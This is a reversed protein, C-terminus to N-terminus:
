LSTTKLDVFEIDTILSKVSSMKTQFNSGSLMVPLADSKAKVVESSTYTYVDGGNGAFVDDIYWGHLEYNDNKMTITPLTKDCSTTKNYVTCTDSNKSIKTIGQGEIEYSVIIDKKYIGYITKNENPMVYSPLATTADKDTNWGLFMYGEKTCTVNTLDVNKGVDFLSSQGISGGGNEECNYTLTRSDKSIIEDNDVEKSEAQVFNFSISSVGTVEGGNYEPNYAVKVKIDVTSNNSGKKYLKQGKAYGSYTIIVASNNSPTSTIDDLTADITGNNTITVIYEMSDGPEYLDASMSASLNDWTPNITNGQANKSNVANGTPTGNTINTIKVDWNSTVRTSGKIDFKQSFTAYAVTMLLLIGILTYIVIKRKQRGRHM